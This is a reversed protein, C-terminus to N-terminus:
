CPPKQVEWFGCSGQEVALGAQPEPIFTWMSPYHSWSSERTPVYVAVYKHFMVGTPLIFVYGWITDLLKM